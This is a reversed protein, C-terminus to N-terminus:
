SGDAGSGKVGLQARREAGAAELAPAIALLRDIAARQQAPLSKLTEMLAEDSMNM